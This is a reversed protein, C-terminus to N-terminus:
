KYEVPLSKRIPLPIAFLFIEKKLPPSSVASIAILISPTPCTPTPLAKATGSVSFNWTSLEM